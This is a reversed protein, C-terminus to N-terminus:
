SHRFVKNVELLRDIAQCDMSPPSRDLVVQGNFVKKRWSVDAFAAEPSVVHWGSDEVMQLIDKLYLANLDTAHLLLIHTIPTSFKSQYFDIFYRCWEKVLGVYVKKLAQYDVCVGGMVAKKLRDDIYWDYTKITVCGEVYGMKNLLELSAMEKEHSGGLDVRNGYDLSPYRYWKRMNKYPSLIAETQRIESEFEALSQSSLHGHTM